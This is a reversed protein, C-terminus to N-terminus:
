ENSAQRRREEEKRKIAAEPNAKEWKAHMEKKEQEDAWYKKHEAERLAMRAKESELHGMFQNLLYVGFSVVTILGISELWNM